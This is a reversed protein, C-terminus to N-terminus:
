MMTGEENQQYEKAKEKINDIYTAARQIKKVLPDNVGYVIAMPLVTQHLYDAIEMLNNQLTSHEKSGIGRIQM